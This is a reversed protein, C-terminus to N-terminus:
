VEVQQEQWEVRGKPGLRRGTELVVRRISKLSSFIDKWTRPVPSNNDWTHLAYLVTDCGERDCHANIRQFHESYDWLGHRNKTNYTHAVLAVQEIADTTALHDSSSAPTLNPRITKM